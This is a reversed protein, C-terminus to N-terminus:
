IAEEEEVITKTRSKKGGIPISIGIQANIGKMTTPIFDSNVHPLIYDSAVFLNLGKSPALHVALGFTDYKSHKFSYSASTSVWPCPRFNVSATYETSNFYDGFRNTYLAGVSLKHKIIEYEAGLVLQMRLMKSYGSASTGDDRLNIADKIDTFADELVDSLSTNQDSHQNMNETNVVVETESSTLTLSNNKGWAILGVDNLAGSVKLGRLAPLAGGMDYVAGLDIAGGYGAPQFNGFDFGDLLGDEDYTPTVGPAAGKLTVQSKARWENMTTNINLNKADLDFDAFGILFKPRVGIILDNNLFPRSYSVGLEAFATGTSAIDSLDYSSNGDRSFGNKLLSFVSKPLTADAHVRATLDINWFADGKYFGVGILKVKVDTALYNDDAIGSLFEDASVSKHMFTVRENGSKFTLHDLNFTNTEAGVSVNPLIPIVIYGQDPRMAPNLNNRSYATEMFYDNRTTQAIATTASAFLAVALATYKFTIYLKM